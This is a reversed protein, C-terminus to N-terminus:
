SPKHRAEDELLVKHYAIWGEPHKPCPYGAKDWAEYIPIRYEAMPLVLANSYDSTTTM